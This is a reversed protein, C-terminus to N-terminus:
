FSVTTEYETTSETTTDDNRFIKNIDDDTFDLTVEKDENEKFINRNQVNPKDNKNDIDRQNPIKEEYIGWIRPDQTTQAPTILKDYNADPNATLTEIKENNILENNRRSKDYQKNKGFSQSFPSFVSVNNLLLSVTSSRARIQLGHM